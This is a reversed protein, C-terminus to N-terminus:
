NAAKIEGIQPKMGNLPNTKEFAYDFNLVIEENFVPGIIQM